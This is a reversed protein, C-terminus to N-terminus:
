NRYLLKKEKINRFVNQGKGISFGSWPPPPTLTTPVVGLKGPLEQQKARSPFFSM